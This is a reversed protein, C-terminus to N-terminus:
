MRTTVSRRPNSRLSNCRQRPPSGAKSTVSRSRIPPMSRSRHRSTGSRAPYRLMHGITLFIRSAGRDWLADSPTGSGPRPRASTASRIARLMTTASGSALALSSRTATARQDDPPDRHEWVHTSLLRASLAEHAEEERAPHRMRPYRRCLLFEERARGACRVENHAATGPEGQVMRKSSEEPADLRVAEDRIGEERCSAHSLQTAKM